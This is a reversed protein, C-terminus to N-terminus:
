DEKNCRNKISIIFTKISKTYFLAYIFIYVIVGILTKFILILLNSDIFTIDIYYLAFFMIVGSIIAPITMKVYKMVPLKKWVFICHLMCVIIEALLTAYAAGLSAYRPILLYNFVLNIVTGSLVSVTYAIDMHNPIMFQTRLVNAFGVFLCSPLLIYFLEICKDFGDGYYLPVFVTAVGMIGFGMSSALFSEFRISKELYSMSTDSQDNAILNSIRPLMVMGLSNILVSPVLIMKDSSEYYGVETKSAMVGLMIKDMYKYLSVAIVPIFLVLNPKIHSIIGKITIKEFSIYKKLSFWMIIQSVLIGASYIFAYKYVDTKSKVLVFILIVTFLKVFTNRATTIKFKELGFFFWNVDFGASLVYMLFIVSILRDDSWFVIYILYIITSLVSTFVQLSFIEMFKVSLEKPNDRVIAISRNGYNTVGLMAFMVFYYAVTNAFSFVGITEAGLIRTLYPTTILPIIIALIQYSTNFLFNVKLSSKTEKEDSM